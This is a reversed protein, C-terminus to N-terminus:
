SEGKEKKEPTERSRAMIKQVQNGGTHGTPSRQKKRTRPMTKPNEEKEKVSPISPLSTTVEKCTNGRREMTGGAVATQVSTGQRVNL